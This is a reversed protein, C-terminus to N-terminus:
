SEAYCALAARWFSDPMVGTEYYDTTATMIGALGIESMLYNLMCECDQRTVTDSVCGDMYAEKFEAPLTDSSSPAPQVAAPPTSAEASEDNTMSGVAGVFWTVFMAVAVVVAIGGIVEMITKTTSKEM